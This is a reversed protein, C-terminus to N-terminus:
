HSCKSTAFQLTPDVIMKPHVGVNAAGHVNVARREICSHLTTQSADVLVGIMLVSIGELKRFYRPAARIELDPIPM